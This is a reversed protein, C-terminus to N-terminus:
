TYVLRLQHPAFKSEKIAIPIIAFYSIYKSQSDFDYM